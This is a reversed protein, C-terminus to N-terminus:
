EHNTSVLVLATLATRPSYTLPVMRHVIAVEMRQYQLIAIDREYVILKEALLLAPKGRKGTEGAEM